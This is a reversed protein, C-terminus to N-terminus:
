GCADEAAARREDWRWFCVLALAVGVTVFVDAVNFVPFSVFTTALFDTVEGSTVRDILNGVGGGAVSGLSCLFPVTLDAARAVFVACAVVAVVALLAFLWQSGECISFAAGTNMVLHLDLVGDILTVPGHALGERAAAKSLQDLAVALAAVGM